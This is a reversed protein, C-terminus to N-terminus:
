FVRNCDPCSQYGNAAKTRHDPLSCPIAVRDSMFSRTSRHPTKFRDSHKRRPANSNIANQEARAIKKDITM